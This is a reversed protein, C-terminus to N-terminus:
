IETRDPLVTILIKNRLKTLGAKLLLHNIFYITQSDLDILEDEGVLEVIRLLVLGIENNKVLNILEAPPLNSKSLEEYNIEKPILLGDDQLSDLLIVDNLSIKYKKNKKLKKHIRQLEKETNKKSLSKEVYYRVVKSTHYSKDNYKIKGLIKEKESIINKEVLVQYELPIKEADLNKLEQSLYDKFVNPLNDSKFLNNLIFLYKLKLEINDSL